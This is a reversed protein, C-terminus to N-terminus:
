RRGVCRVAEEDNRVDYGIYGYRGYFYYAYGTNGANVSASWFWRNEMNPLVERFGHKEAEEFEEKTPIRDGFKEVAEYYSFKKDEVDHWTLGTKQDKWSEKGDIRSLLQFVGDKTTIVTTGPEVTRLDPRRLDIVMNM